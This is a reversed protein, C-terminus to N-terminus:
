NSANTSHQIIHFLCTPSMVPNRENMPPMLNQSFSIHSAHTLWMLTWGQPPKTTILVMHSLLRVDEPHLHNLRPRPIRLICLDDQSKTSLWWPQCREILSDDEPHAPADSFFICFFCVKMPVFLESPFVKPHLLPQLLGSNCHICSSVFQLCGVHLLM